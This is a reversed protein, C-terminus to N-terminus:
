NRGLGDLARVAKGVDETSHAIIEWELEDDDPVHVTFLARITGDSEIYAGTEVTVRNLPFSAIRTRSTPDEPARNRLGGAPISVVSLFESDRCLYVFAPGRRTNGTLIREPSDGGSLEALVGIAMHEATAVIQEPVYTPV